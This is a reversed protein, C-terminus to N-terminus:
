RGTVLYNYANTAGVISDSAHHEHGGDYVRFLQLYMDYTIRYKGHIVLEIESHQELVRRLDNAGITPDIM